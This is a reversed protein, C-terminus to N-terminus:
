VLLPRSVFSFLSLKFLSQDKLIVKFPTQCGVLDVPELEDSTKVDTEHLVAVCDGARHKHDEVKGGQLDDVLVVLHDFEGCGVDRAEKREALRGEEESEEVLLFCVTGIESGLDQDEVAIPHQMMPATPNGTVNANEGVDGRDPHCLGEKGDVAEMGLLDALPRSLVAVVRTVRHGENPLRPSQPAKCQSAGLVADFGNEDTRSM